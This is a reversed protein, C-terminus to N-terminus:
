PSIHGTMALPGSDFALFSDCIGLPTL